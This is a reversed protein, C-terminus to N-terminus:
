EGGGEEGPNETATAPDSPAEFGDELMKAWVRDREGANVSKREAHALRARIADVRPKGDGGFEDFRLLGIAAALREEFTAEKEVHPHAGTEDKSGERGTADAAAEVVVLMPDRGLAEWQEPTFDDEDWIRPAATHAVGARRFGERKAQIVFKAM